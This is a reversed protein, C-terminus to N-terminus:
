DDSDGQKLIMDLADQIDMKTAACTFIFQLGLEIVSDRAKDGMTVTIGASGDEYDTVTDVVIAFPEMEDVSAQNAAEREKARQREEDTMERIPTDEAEGAALEETPPLPGNNEGYHGYEDFCDSTRSM